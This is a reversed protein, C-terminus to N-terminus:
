ATPHEIDPCIVNLLIPNSQIKKGNGLIKPHEIHDFSIRRKRNTEERMIDLTMPILNGFLKVKFM